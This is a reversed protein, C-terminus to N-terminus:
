DKNKLLLSRNDLTHKKLIRISESRVTANKKMNWLVDSARKRQPKLDVIPFPYNVGLEFDNFQQDLTTMLYPEHVFPLDLERLEPVWHKIFVGDPDHELSNKIPNYIRLNNIGTEGAQMQLQPYHIGPEFDLFQQSLHKSADQWPQWLIHTFFSVLMARMRFNIYGTENLCRMSADVLPFGTNGERWASQYQDSISKKLKHYGKNISVKEMIHEMEFKQIFHAQWRLRSRFAALQKKHSSPTQTTKSTQYVQRVSLNGWAIYPSLRSCSKRSKEPKSIHFMYDKHRTNLFSKLYKWGLTSGGQQFPKEKSTNLDTTQFQNELEYIANLSLFDASDASFNILPEAMIKNWNDFWSERNVLGRLVGNQISEHWTILNNKCYRKFSKDRDFTVQIGTEQHSYVSKIQYDNSILNCTSIIDSNAALVKTNYAELQTNLDRISEKLFDWHRQSYHENDLLLKEFVFVCLVPENQQLALHLPEHDELRLDRKFWVIHIPERKIRM